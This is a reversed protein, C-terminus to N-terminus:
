KSMKTLLDTVVKGTYDVLPVVKEYDMRTPGIIGVVGVKSKGIQYSSTIISCGSIELDSVEEGILTNVGDKDINREIISKLM